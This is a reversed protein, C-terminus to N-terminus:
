GHGRADEILRRGEPRRDLPITGSIGDDVYWGAVEFPSPTQRYLEVYNALFHRQSDITGQDAQDETSVRAYLAVRIAAQPLSNM